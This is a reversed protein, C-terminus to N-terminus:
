SKFREFQWGAQKNWTVGVFAFEPFMTAAVKIKVRADDEWHGKTEHLEIKGDLMVVEFDPDYYTKPALRLKWPEFRWKAIEGCMKRVELHEAYRTELRNMKGAERTARGSAKAPDVRSVGVCARSISPLEAPSPNTRTERFAAPTTRLAYDQWREGM